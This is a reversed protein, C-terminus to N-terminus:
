IASAMSLACVGVPQYTISSRYARDETPSIVGEIRVAEAAYYDLTDCSGGIESVSQGLPKGQELAMLRGIHNARTRVHASAKTIIKQREYATLTSWAAFAAHASAVARDVDSQGAKAIRGVPEGTAPSQITFTAGDVAACLQGDILNCIDILTETLPM